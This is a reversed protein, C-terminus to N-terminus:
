NRRTQAPEILVDYERALAEVAEREILTVHRGTGPRDSYTGIGEFYRDGELGRGEVATVREVSEVPGGGTPAIFLGEVTGQWMSGTGEPRTPDPGPYRRLPLLSM